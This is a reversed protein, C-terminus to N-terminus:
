FRLGAGLGARLAVPEPVHAVSREGALVFVFPRPDLAINLAADLRLVFWPAPRWALAAGGSPAMWLAGGSGPNRVGFGSGRMEGMEFGVCASAALKAFTTDWPAVDRCARLAGGYLSMTVGASSSAITRSSYPFGIFALALEYERFRGFLGAVIGPAPAPLAGVDLAFSAFPGWSFPRPAEIRPPDATARASGTPLATPIPVEIRVVTLSPDPAATTTPAASASGSSTPAPPTEPIGSPDAAAVAAPDYTLAIVLAAADALSACSAAEMSRVTQGGGRLLTLTLRMRDGQLAQIQADASLPRDTPAPKGGLLRDVRARVAEGEPCGEPATWRLTIPEASEEARLTLTVATAGIATLAGAVIVPGIPRSGAAKWSRRMGRM